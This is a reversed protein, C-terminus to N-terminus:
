MCRPSFMSNITYRATTRSLRQRIYHQESMTRKNLYTEAPEPSLSRGRGGQRGAVSSLHSIHHDRTDADRLNVNQNLHGVM